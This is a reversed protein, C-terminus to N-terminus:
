KIKKPKNYVKERLAIKKNVNNLYAVSLKSENKTKALNNNISAIQKKLEENQQQLQEKRQGFFFGFLLIGCVLSIRRIM